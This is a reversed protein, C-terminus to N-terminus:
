NSVTNAKQDMIWAVVAMRRAITKCRDDFTENTFGSEIVQVVKRASIREGETRGYTQAEKFSKLVMVQASLMIEWRRSVPFNELNILGLEELMVFDAFGVSDISPKDLGILQGIRASRIEAMKDRGEESNWYDRKTDEITKADLKREVDDIRRSVSARHVDYASLILGLSAVSFCGYWAAFSQATVGTIQGAAGLRFAEKLEHCGLHGFSRFFMSAMEAFIPDSGDSRSGTYDQVLKTLTAVVEATISVPDQTALYRVSGEFNTQLVAQVTETM